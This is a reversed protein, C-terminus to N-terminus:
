SSYLNHSLGIEVRSCTEELLKILTEETVEREKKERIIEARMKSDMEDIGLTIYKHTEDRFKGQVEVNEFMRGLEEKIKKLLKDYGIERSQTENEVADQLLTIEKTFEQIQTDETEERINKEKGLEIKIEFLKEDVAKNLRGFAEKGNQKEINLDINLNNELLKM